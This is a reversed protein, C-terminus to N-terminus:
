QTAFPGRGVNMHATHVRTVSQKPLRGAPTLGRKAGNVGARARTQVSERRQGWHGVGVKLDCLRMFDQASRASAPVLLLYTDVLNEPKAQLAKVVSVAAGMEREVYACYASGGAADDNPLAARPFELLTRRMSDVDISLQLTGKESVRPSVPPGFSPSSVWPAPTSLRPVPPLDHQV